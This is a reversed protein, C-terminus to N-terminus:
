KHGFEDYAFKSGARGSDTAIIVDQSQIKGYVPVGLKMTSTLEDISKRLQSNDTGGANGMPLNQGYDNVPIPNTTALVSDRPNLEFTGAPGTMYTIGGPGTKLDDVKGAAGIGGGILGGSAFAAALPLSAGGTAPALLTAIVALAGGIAAGKFTNKIRKVVNEFTNPLELLKKSLLLIADGVEHFKTVIKKMGGDDLFKNFDKALILVQESFGKISTRITEVAGSDQVFKAFKSAVVELGPGLSLFVEQSLSKFSNIIKTLSSLADQGIIDDFSDGALAGALTLKKTGSALKAVEVVSMGLAKALSEQQFVNLETFKGIGRLQNQLEEQFGVLDKSFSLERARQLNIRRGLLISAETEAVISSQIDLVGRAASAITDINLGFQRAAVAAEFLNAGSDKTFKAVAESSDALDKLAANPSVKNARALQATGEILSEATDGTLGVIQMLTGQLKTANDVSLGVGVATDVIQERLEKTNDLSIGFESSLAQTVSRVEEMGKGVMIAQTSSSVLQNNFKAGTVNLSGFEEGVDNLLNSFKTFSAVLTGIIAGGIAMRRNLRDQAEEGAEETKLLEKRSTATQNMTTLLDARQDASLGKISSLESEVDLEHVMGKSIDDQLKLLKARQKVNLAGDAVSTRVVKSFDQQVKKLKLQQTLTSKSYKTQLAGAINGKLLYSLIGQNSKVVQKQISNLEKSISLEVKNGAIIQTNYASQKELLANYEEAYKIQFRDSELIEQKLSQIYKLRKAEQETLPKAM